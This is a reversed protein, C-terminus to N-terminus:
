LSRFRDSSHLQFLHLPDIRFVLNASGTAPASQKLLPWFSWSAPPGILNWPSSVIKESTLALLRESFCSNSDIAILLLHLQLRVWPTDLVIIPRPLPSLALAAAASFICTALSSSRHRWGALAASVREQSSAAHRQQMRWASYEMANNQNRKLVDLLHHAQVYYRCSTHM